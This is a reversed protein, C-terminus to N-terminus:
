SFCEHPCDAYIPHDHPSHHAVKEEERLFLSRCTSAIKRAKELEAETIPQLDRVASVAKDVLDLFSPPIGAAVSAQSLAFRWALDVEDKEEVSRYWWKRTREMDDPWRGRCMAKMAIVAVGQEAALKLVPKGFGITYYEVFSIPFMATDFRFNELAMLAAKTTHASFGIARIKGQEKAELITEMAGGPALATKVHEETQLCHLQYLDFHDTKLRDLSRDLEERAGAKDRMKTKCALFYDDRKLGQLGIGMRIECAGERGYAPAVDFYNIGNEFAKHLGATCEDQEHHTLALGPFGVVSVERGTRGLVRRPVGAVKSPQAQTSVAAGAMAGTGVAGGVAQLFSRRKM